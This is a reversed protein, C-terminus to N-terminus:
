TVLFLRQAFLAKKYKNKGCYLTAGQTVDGEICPSVESLLRHAGITGLSGTGINMINM